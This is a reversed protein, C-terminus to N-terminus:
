EEGAMFYKEPPAFFRPITPEGEKKKKKLPQISALKSLADLVPQKMTEGARLGMVGPTFSSMRGQINGISRGIEAWKGGGIEGRTFKGALTPLGAGEGFGGAFGKLGSLWDM